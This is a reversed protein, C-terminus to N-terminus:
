FIAYRLALNYNARVINLANYIKDSYDLRFSGTIQLQPSIYYNGDLGFYIRNSWSKTQTVIDQQYILESGNYGLSGSLSTRSDPFFDFGFNVDASSLNRPYNDLNLDTNDIMTENSLLVNFHRDWFMNLQKTCNFSLNSILETNTAIQSSTSLSKYYYRSFQPSLWFKLVRGSERDQFNAFSWYDNLTTFYSIDTDKILGKTHLLSDLAQLEAIKRLRFDFFRKNKLKSAFSAFEFIDREELEKSLSKQGKLKELIYYAQWLDSVMEMRGIGAGFDIIANFSNTKNHTDVIDGITKKSESLNFGLSPAVELFYKDEKLYYRRSGGINFSFNPNMQKTIEDASRDKTYDYQGSISSYLHDIRTRTLYDYQYNLSLSSHSNSSSYDKRETGTAGTFSPEDYSNKYSNGNSNINFELEHRKYDPFKYKSLDFNKDQAFGAFSAGLVCIFALINRM